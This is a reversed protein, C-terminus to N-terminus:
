LKDTSTRTQRHKNTNQTRIPDRDVKKPQPSPTDTHAQWITYLIKNPECTNPTNIAELRVFKPALAGTRAREGSSRHTIKPIIFSHHDDQDAKM